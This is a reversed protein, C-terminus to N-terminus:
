APRLRTLTQAARVSGVVRDLSDVVWAHATVADGSAADRGAAIAICVDYGLARLAACEAISRYLCSTRWRGGPIRSLLRLARNAARLAVPAEARRRATAAGRLRTLEDFGRALLAPARIASWVGVAVAIM